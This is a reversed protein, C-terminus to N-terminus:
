SSLHSLNTNNNGAPSNYRIKLTVDKSNVDKNAAVISSGLLESRLFEVAPKHSSKYICKTADCSLEFRYAQIHMHLGGLFVVFLSLILWVLSLMTDKTMPPLVKKVPPPAQTAHQPHQWQYDSSRYQQGGGGNGGQNPGQMGPPYMQETTREVTPKLKECVSIHLDCERIKQTGLPNRNHKTVNM